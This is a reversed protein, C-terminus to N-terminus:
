RPGVRGAALVRVAGVHELDRGAVPGLCWGRGRRRLPTQVQEVRVERLAVEHPEDLRLRAGKERAIVRVLLLQCRAEASLPPERRCWAPIAPEGPNLRRDALAATETEALHQHSPCYGNHPLRCGSCVAHGEAHHGPM